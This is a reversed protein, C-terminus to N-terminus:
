RKTLFVGGGEATPVPLARGGGDRDRRLFLRAVGSLALFVPTAVLAPLTCVILAGLSLYGFVCLAYLMEIFIMKM